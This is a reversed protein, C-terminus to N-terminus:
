ELAFKQFKCKLCHKLHIICPYKKLFDVIQRKQHNTFYIATMQNILFFNPTTMGKTTVEMNIILLDFFFGM